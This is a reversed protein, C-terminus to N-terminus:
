AIVPVTRCSSCTSTPKAVSSPVTEATLSTDSDTASPSIKPRTPSDPHPLVVSAIAM